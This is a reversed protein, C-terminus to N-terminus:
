LAGCVLGAVEGACGWALTLGSGGHGYCHVVPLPAARGEVPLSELELRVSPRGPRM